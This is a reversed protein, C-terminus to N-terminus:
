VCFGRTRRSTHERSMIFHLHKRSSEGKPFRSAHFIAAFQIGRPLSIRSYAIKSGTCRGGFNFVGVIQVNLVQAQLSIIIKNLLFSM